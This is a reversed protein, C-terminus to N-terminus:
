WYSLFLSSLKFVVQSKCLDYMSASTSYDELRLSTEKYVGGGTAAQGRGHGGARGCIPFWSQRMGPRWDKKMKRGCKRNGELKSATRAGAGPSERGRASANTARM